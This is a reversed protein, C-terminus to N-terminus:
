KNSNQALSFVVGGLFNLGYVPYQNWRQYQKNFINNFQAWVKINKAVGFEMGASLDVAGKQTRDDGGKTLYRPGDFAFLDSTVYLDKMVQIRLRSTFELPLLGFAKDAQELKSFRNFRVSSNFSVREGYTYGMEGSIYTNNLATENIVRFSKGSATDNVFLPQNHLKASGIRIGYTFHSGVSGKAGAYADTIRTNYVSDPAWIWPNFAALQQFGANRYSGIWGVQVAVTKQATGFEANINPLLHFSGNDWSPKVGANVVVGNKQFILSPALLFYNNAIAERNNPKYRGLSAELAVKASFQETFIKSVPVHLWTNSETNSLGDSFVDVKLEPAYLLGWATPSLNRYAVRGRVTRYQVKISDEPFKLTDPQFGYKNYRELVTGLRGSWEGNSSNQFFGAVDFDTYGFKQYPIKGKSSVHKGYFNVGKTKGDGLSIGAQLFPTSLNGFGAKIYNAMAFRGGTDVTLAMPKLSGPLFALNLNQNPITYNLRPRSTDAVPPAANFKIKAAEKLEPKFTSTVNVERKKTTDQATAGVSLLLAGAILINKNM